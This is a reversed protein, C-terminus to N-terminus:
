RWARPAGYGGYTRGGDAWRARSPGAGASPEPSVGPPGCALLVVALAALEEPGARGREVRLAVTEEGSCSM